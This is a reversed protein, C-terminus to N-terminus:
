RLYFIAVEDEELYNKGGVTRMCYGKLMEDESAEYGKTEWGKRRDLIARSWSWDYSGFCFVSYVQDVM